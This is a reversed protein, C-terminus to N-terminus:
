DNNTEEEEEDKDQQYVAWIGPYKSDDPKIACIFSNDLLETVGLGEDFLDLISSIGEETTVNEYPPLVKLLSSYILKSLAYGSYVKRTIACALVPIAIMYTNEATTTRTSDSYAYMSELLLRSIYLLITETFRNANAEGTDLAKAPIIVLQCDTGNIFVRDNFADKDECDCIVTIRTGDSTQRTYVRQIDEFKIGYIMELTKAIEKNPMHAVREIPEPSIMSLLDSEIEKFM